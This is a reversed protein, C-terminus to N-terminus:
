LIKGRCSRHFDPVFITDRHVELLRIPINSLFDVDPRAFIIADYKTHAVDYNTHSENESIHKLNLWTTTSVIQNKNEAHSTNTTITANNEGISGELNVQFVSRSSDNTNHIHEVACALQYISYLARIHNRLSDLNNNWPDGQSAFQGYDQTSDFKDQDLAHNLINQHNYLYMM